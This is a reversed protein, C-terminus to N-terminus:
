EPDHGAGPIKGIVAELAWRQSEYTELDEADVILEVQHTIRKVSGMSVRAPTAEGHVLRAHLAALSRGLWGGLRSSLAGPGTLLASVIPPGGDASWELEVDDVNGCPRGNRDILQCDLVNLALDVKRGAM